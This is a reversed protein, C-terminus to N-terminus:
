PTQEPLRSLLQEADDYRHNAYMLGITRRMIAPDRWGRRLARQYHLVASRPEEGREELEARFLSLAAWAPRQAALALESASKREHRGQRGAEDAAAVAPPHRAGGM